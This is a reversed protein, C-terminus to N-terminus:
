TTVGRRGYSFISTHIMKQEVSPFPRRPHSPVIQASSFSLLFVSLVKWDSQGEHRIFRYRLHPYTSWTLLMCSSQVGGNRPFWHWDFRKKKRIIAFIKNKVSNTESRTYNELLILGRLVHSGAPILPIPPYRVCTSHIAWMPIWRTTVRMKAEFKLSEYVPIQPYLREM